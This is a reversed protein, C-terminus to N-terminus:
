LRQVVLIAQWFQEPDDIYNLIKFYPSWEREIFALPVVADGYIEEFGENTQMFVLKGTDFAQKFEPVQPKHKSLEQYWGHETDNPITDIFDIFRGPEITLVCVCEPRAVRAFERMWHLHIKEPLHTFVSYAMITDFFNDPYPLTGQPDIHDIQGPVNLDRCVDIISKNVDCGFLNGEDVDKWFFRLYRGWGCGFDLFPKRRELPNRANKASLKVFKYFEFAEYLTKENSSGVFREQLDDSPFGPFEVGNVMPSSISKLLTDFWETDKMREISKPLESKM